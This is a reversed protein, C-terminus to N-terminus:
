ANHIVPTLFVSTTSSTGFSDQNANVSSLKTQVQVNLVTKLVTKMLIVVPQKTTSSTFNNANMVSLKIQTEEWVTQYILPSRWVSTKHTPFMRLDMVMLVNRAFLPAIRAILVTLIKVSEKVLSGLRITLKSDMIVIGVNLEMKLTELLLVDKLPQRLVDELPLTPLQILMANNVNKPILKVDPVIQWHVLILFVLRRPFTTFMISIWVNYVCIVLHAACHVILWIAHIKKVFLLLKIKPHKWLIDM